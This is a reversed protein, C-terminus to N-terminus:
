ASATGVCKKVEQKPCPSKGHPLSFHGTFCRVVGNCIGIMHIIISAGYMNQQNIILLTTEEFGNRGSNDNMEPAVDPEM